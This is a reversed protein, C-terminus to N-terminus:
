VDCQQLVLTVYFTSAFPLTDCSKRGRFQTLTLIFGALFNDLETEINGLYEFSFSRTTGGVASDLEFTNPIHTSQLDYYLSQNGNAVCSHVM